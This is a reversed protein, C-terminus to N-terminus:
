TEVIAYFSLHPLDTWRNWLYANGWLTQFWSGALGCVWEDPQLLVVIGKWNFPKLPLSSKYCIWHWAMKQGLPPENNIEDKAVFKSYFIFIFFEFKKMLLFAYSFTCFPLWKAEAENIIDWKMPKPLVCGTTLSLASMRTGHRDCGLSGDDVQQCAPCHSYWSIYSCDATLNCRM